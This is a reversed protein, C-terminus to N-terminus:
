VQRDVHAFASHRRVGILTFYLAGGLDVRGVGLGESASFLILHEYNANALPQPNLTEHISRWKIPISRGSNFKQAFRDRLAGRRCPDYIFEKSVSVSNQFVADIDLGKARM